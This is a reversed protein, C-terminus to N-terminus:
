VFVILPAPPSKEYRELDFIVVIPMSSRNKQGFLFNRISLPDQVPTQYFCLNDATIGIFDLASENDDGILGLCSVLLVGVILLVISKIFIRSMQRTGDKRMTQDNFV